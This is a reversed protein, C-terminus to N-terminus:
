VGVLDPAEVVPAPEDNDYVPCEPAPEVDEARELGAKTLLWGVGLDAAKAARNLAWKDNRLLSIWNALYNDHGEWV